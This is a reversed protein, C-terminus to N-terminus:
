ENKPICKKKLKIKDENTDKNGNIDVKLKDMLYVIGNLNFAIAAAHDEDTEGGMLQFTHRLFSAKFRNLEEVSNAKEWNRESYKVAGRDMLMSWRCLLTQEYKQSEPILLDFRPKNEQPEREMGSKFNKRKGGDKTIM